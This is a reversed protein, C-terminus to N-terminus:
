ELIDFTREEFDEYRGQVFARCAAHGTYVSADFANSESYDIEVEPHVDELMGDIDEHSYRRLVRDIIELNRSVTRGTDRGRRAPALGRAARLASRCRRTLSRSLTTYPFLTSRPPRRIM